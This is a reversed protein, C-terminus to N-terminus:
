ILELKKALFYIIISSKISMEDSVFEFSYNKINKLQNSCTEILSYNDTASTMVVEATEGDYDYSLIKVNNNRLIDLFEELYETSFRLKITAFGDNISKTIVSIDANEEQPEIYNVFDQTRSQIQENIEDPTKNRRIDRSFKFEDKLKKDLDIYVKLNFVENLDRMMLTHLGEVLIFDNVKLHKVEDFTGTLHNYEKIKEVNGSIIEILQKKFLALQNVIPDLHTKSDWVKSSREFKHYNDTEITTTNQEGLFDALITSITSKGVGSDGSIAVVVPRSKIRYYKNQILFQYFYRIIILSFFFQLALLNENITITFVKIEVIVVCVFYLYILYRRSNELSIFVYVIAPISWLFWGLNSFNLIFLPFTCIGLCVVLGFYDMKKINKWFFYYTIFIITQSIILTNLNFIGSYQLVKSGEKIGSIVSEYYFDNYVVPGYFIAIYFFSRISLLITKNADHLNKHIFTILLPLILILIVKSGIGLCLFFLAADFQRNKFYSLSLIFFLLPIFDLYGKAVVSYIIIPNLVFPLLLSQEDVEYFNKLIIIVLIEVVIYALIVFSINLFNAIKFFPVLFIYMVYGYPFSLTTSDFSYINEFPNLCYGSCSDFFQYFREVELEPSFQLIV